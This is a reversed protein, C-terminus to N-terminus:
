PARQRRAFRLRARALLRQKRRALAAAREAASGAFRAGARHGCRLEDRGAEGSVRGQRREM